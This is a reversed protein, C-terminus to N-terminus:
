GKELSIVQFSIFLIDFAIRNKKGLFNRTEIIREKLEEIKNM